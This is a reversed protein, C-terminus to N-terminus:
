SPGRQPALSLVYATLDVVADDGLAKWSPMATGPLGDRISQFVKPPTVSLRWASSTFDRPPRAFATTRPGTGDGRDGHCLACYQAYLALGRLRAAESSVRSEFGAPLEVPSNSRACGSAILLGLLPLWGRRTM